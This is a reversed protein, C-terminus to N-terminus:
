GDHSSLRVLDTSDDHRRCVSNKASSAALRLLIILFIPRAEVACFRLLRVVRDSKPMVLHAFHPLVNNDEPDPSTHEYPEERIYNGNWCSSVLIM